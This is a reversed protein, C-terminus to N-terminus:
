IGMKKWFEIGNIVGNSCYYDDIDFMKKLHNNINKSERFFSSYLNLFINKDIEINLIEDKGFIKFMDDIYEIIASYIKESSEVKDLNNDFNFVPEIKKDENRFYQLQGQPATLFSEILISGKYIPNNVIKDLDYLNENYCSEVNCGISLPKIDGSIAFYKGDIKQDLLLSLYYQATGSYGLDLFNLNKTKYDGLTQEVYKLYNEKEYQVQKMISEYNNIIVNKVIEYDRPLEIIYDDLLDLKYGLRYYFLERLTGKFSKKMIELLDDLNEAQAVTISKQWYLGLRKIKSLSKIQTNTINEINIYLTDM